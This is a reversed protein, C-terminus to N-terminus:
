AQAKPIVVLQHSGANAPGNTLDSKLGSKLCQEVRNRGNRKAEYLATDARKVTVDIAVDDEAWQTVGFSCAVSGPELVGELEIELMAERLREALVLAGSADTSPLLLAFEEGGLRGAVDIDRRLTSSCTEAVCRIVEDGVAHGLQDNVRKFHDIDLMVVSLPSRYRRARSVEMEARDIFHRRNSLGTLPDTTALQRLRFELREREAIEAELDARRRESDDVLEILQTSQRVVRRGLWVLIMGILAFVPILLWAVRVFSRGRLFTQNLTAEGTTSIELWVVELEALARLAPDDDVWVVEDITESPQDILRMTQALDLKDMYDALVSQVTGLAHKERETAITRYLEISIMARQFDEEAAEYDSPDGRLVYDKLNHIFGGYGIAARIESIHEFRRQVSQESLHLEHSTTELISEAVIIVAIAGSVVLGVLLAGAAILTRPGRQSPLM